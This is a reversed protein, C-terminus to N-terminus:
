LSRKSLLELIRRSCENSADRGSECEPMYMSAEDKCVMAAEQLVKDRWSRLLTALSAVTRDSQLSDYSEEYWRVAENEAEDGQVEQLSQIENFSGPATLKALAADLRDMADFTRREHSENALRIIRAVDECSMGVVNAVEGPRGAPLIAVPKGKDSFLVWPPGLDKNDETIFEPLLESDKLSKISM